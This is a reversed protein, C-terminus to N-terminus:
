RKGIIGAGGIVVIEKAGGISVSGNVIMALGNDDQSSVVEAFGNRHGAGGFCVKNDAGSVINLSKGDGM